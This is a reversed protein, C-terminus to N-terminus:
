KGTNATVSSLPNWTYIVTSSSPQSPKLTYSFPKYECMHMGQFFLKTPYAKTIYVLMATANAIANAKSSAKVLVGVMNPNSASGSSQALYYGHTGIKAAYTMKYSQVVRGTPCVLNNALASVSVSALFAALVASLVYKRM